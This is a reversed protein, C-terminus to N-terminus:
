DRSAEESEEMMSEEECFECTKWSAEGSGGCSWCREFHPRFTMLGEDAEVEGEGHCRSCEPHYVRIKHKPCLEPAVAPEAM